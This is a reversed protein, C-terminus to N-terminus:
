LRELTEQSEGEQLGSAQVMEAPEERRPLATVRRQTGGVNSCINCQDTQRNGAGNKKFEEVQPVFRM